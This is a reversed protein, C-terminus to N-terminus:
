QTRLSNATFCIGMECNVRSFIEECNEYVKGLYIVNYMIDSCKQPMYQFTGVKFHVIDKIIDFTWVLQHFVEVNMGCTDNQTECFDNEDVQQNPNAFVYKQM